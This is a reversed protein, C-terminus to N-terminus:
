DSQGDVSTSGNSSSEAGTSQSDTSSSDTNSSSDTSPVQPQTPQEQQEQEKFTYVDNDIVRLKDWDKTTKTDAKKLWEDLMKNYKDQKKDSIM